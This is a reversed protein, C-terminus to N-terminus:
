PARPYRIDIAPANVAGNCTDAPHGGDRGLAVRLVDGPRQGGAFAPDRAVLFVKQVVANNAFTVVNSGDAATLGASNIRPVAGTRWRSLQLPEFVIGCPTAAAAVLYVVIRVKGNAAYDQPLVLNLFFGQNGVDGDPIAVVSSVSTGGFPFVAQPPYGISGFEAAAAAHTAFALGIALTRRM